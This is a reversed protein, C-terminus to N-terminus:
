IYYSLFADNVETLYEKWVRNSDHIEYITNNLSRQKISEHFLATNEDGQRFWNMKAKQALFSIYAKHVRRYELVVAVEENRVDISMPQVQLAAQCEQMHKLAQVERCHIDSFGEQNLKKLGTKVLKM